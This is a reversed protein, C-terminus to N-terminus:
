TSHGNAIAAAPALSGLTGRGSPLLHRGHSILDRDDGSYGLNGWWERPFSNVGNHILPLKM